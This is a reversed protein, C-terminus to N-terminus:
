FEGLGETVQEATSTKTFGSTPLNRNIMAEPGEEDCAQLSAGGILTAVGVLCDRRDIKM